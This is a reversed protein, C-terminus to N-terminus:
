GFRKRGRGGRVLAPPNRQALVTQRCRRIAVLGILIVAEKALATRSTRSKWTRPACGARRGAHYGAGLAAVMALVIALATM